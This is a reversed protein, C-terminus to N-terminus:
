YNHCMPKTVGRCTPDERVLARVRTGQMPLRVRLWQAVLSAWFGKEKTTHNEEQDSSVLTPDVIPSVQTPLPVLHHLPLELSPCPASPPHLRFAAQVLNPLVLRPQLRPLWRSFSLFPYLAFPVNVNNCLGNRHSNVNGRDIVPNKQALSM